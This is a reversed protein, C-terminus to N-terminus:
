PAAPRAAGVRITASRNRPAVRTVALSVGLQKGEDGPNGTGLVIAGDVLTAGYLSPLPTGDADVIRTSYLQNGLSPIVVSGDIDRFFLEAARAEIGPYWGLADTDARQSFRLHHRPVLGADPRTTPSRGSVGRATRPPSPDYTTDYAYRLGEDFGDLARWEAM